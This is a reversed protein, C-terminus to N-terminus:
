KLLEGVRGTIEVNDLDMGDPALMWNRAGLARLERLRTRMDEATGWLRASRSALWDYVGLRKAREVLIRGRDPDRYSNQINQTDANLQEILPKYEEPIRKGKTGGLTLWHAFIGLTRESAAEASEAFNVEAVHWIELTAPDRGVERCAEEIQLEAWELDEPAVGVSLILGDAVQAATRMTRPGACAVHVPLDFPTWGRWRGRFEAGRWTATEGRLMAKVALIYERLEAVKAPKLGVGWAASDGTAIGCVIRGPALEELQLYAAATVSPHRTIPNTVGTVVKLRNTNLACSASALHVDREGVPSDILVISHLGNREAAQAAAVTSSWGDHFLSLAIQIDSM